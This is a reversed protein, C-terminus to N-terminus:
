NMTNTNFNTDSDLGRGIKGGGGKFYCKVLGNVKKANDAKLKEVEEKLTKIEDKAESIDVDVNYTLFLMQEPIQM